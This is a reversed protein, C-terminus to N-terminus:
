QHEVIEMPRVVGGQMKKLVEGLADGSHTHEQDAGIAVDLEVGGPGQSAGQLIEESAPQRPAHPQSAKGLLRHFLHQLCQGAALLCRGVQGSDDVVLGFSVWEEYLFDELVQGFFPAEQVGRALPPGVKHDGLDVHRFANAQDDTPPEIVEALVDSFAKGRARHNTPAEAEV